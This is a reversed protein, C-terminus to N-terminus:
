AASSFEGELRFEFDHNQRFIMISDIGRITAALDGPLGPYRREGLSLLQNWEDDPGIFQPCAWDIWNRDILVDFRTWAVEDIVIVVRKTGSAAKLQQAAEYVRFLLYDIAQYPSVFGVAPYGSMSRLLIHFDGDEMGIFKVEFSHAQGGESLTEIDPGQNKAELGIITHSHSELWSAFQLEILRGRFTRSLRNRQVPDADFMWKERLDQVYQKSVGPLIGASSMLHRHIPGTVRPLYGRRFALLVISSHSAVADPFIHWERFQPWVQEPVLIERLALCRERLMTFQHLPIQGDPERVMEVDDTAAMCECTINADSM